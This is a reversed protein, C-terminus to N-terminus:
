KLFNIYTNILVKHMLLFCQVFVSKILRGISILITSINLEMDWGFVVMAVYVLSMDVGVLAGHQAQARACALAPVHRCHRLAVVGPDVARRRRHHM